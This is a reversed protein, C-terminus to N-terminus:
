GKRKTQARRAQNTCSGELTYAAIGVDSLSSGRLMMRGNPVSMGLETPLTTRLRTIM